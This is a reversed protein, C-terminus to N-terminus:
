APLNTCEAVFGQLRRRAHFLRSMVTGKSIRLASAMDQYSMGELERMVIVARHFSNLRSLAANLGRKLETRVASEYPDSNSVRPLDLCRSDDVREAIYEWDVRQRLPHRKVDIALNVVIRHLWTYFSSEGRFRHISLYARFFGEQTIEQADYENRMLTIALQQIRRQYRIVLVNFASPEGAQVRAILEDDTRGSCDPSSKAARHAKRSTGDCSHFGPRGPVGVSSVNDLNTGHSWSRRKSSNALIATV